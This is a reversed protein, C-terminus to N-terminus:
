IGLELVLIQKKTIEGYSKPLNFKFCNNSNIIYEVLEGSNSQKTKNKKFTYYYALGGLEDHTNELNINIKNCIDFVYKFVKGQILPAVFSDKPNYNILQAITVSTEVQLDKIREVVNLIIDKLSIDEKDISDEILKSLELNDEKDELKINLSSCIIEYFGALMKDSANRVKDAYYKLDGVDNECKNTEKCLKIFLNKDSIIKVLERYNCDKKDNFLNLILYIFANRSSVIWFIDDTKSNIIDEAVNLIVNIDKNSKYLECAKNIKEQISDPKLTNQINNDKIELISSLVNILDHVNKQNNFKSYDNYDINPDVNISFDVFIGNILTFDHYLYIKKNENTIIEFLAQNFRKFGQELKLDIISEKLLKTNFRKNNKINSVNLNYAENFYKEACKGDYVAQFLANTDTYIAFMQNSCFKEKIVEPEVPKWSRPILISCGTTKDFAEFFPAFKKDKTLYYIKKALLMETSPNKILEKETSYIEVLMNLNEQKPGFAINNDNLLKIGEEATMNYKPRNLKQNICDMELYANKNNEFKTSASYLAYALHFRNMEIYYYGLNRYYHALDRADYIKDYIKLTENKFEEWMKQMKYIESKEFYSSLNLSAIKIQKEIVNLAEEYNGEENYIYSLYSYARAM